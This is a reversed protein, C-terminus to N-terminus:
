DDDGGGGGCFLLYLFHRIYKKLMFVADYM